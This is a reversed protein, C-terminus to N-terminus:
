IFSGGQESLPIMRQSDHTERYARIALRFRRTPMVRDSGITQVLSHKVLTRYADSFQNTDMGSLLQLQRSTIETQSALTKMLMPQSNILGAVVANVEPNTTTTLKTQAVYEPLRFVDNDYCRVMFDRAWDIHEKKVLISQGTGDHSFCCGAVAVAIRALKKHAEGGLLKVDTDFKENLEQAVQWTYRDANAEWKVQESNRSWIWHILNRYSASHHSLYEYEEESLGQADEFPSIYKGDNPLIYIFDFRAVDEDSGILDLVIKVGDPYDLINLSKGNSQVRPNSIWLKRVWAPAVGDVIKEIRATQQSRLGTLTAMVSMPMGSLEDLILMGKHNRPIKGWKIRHGGSPLKDAGGLLGATTATKCETFNGVGYFQQLKLATDSKGTRSEGIVLADLSGRKILERGFKFSMVSHYALDVAWAVMDKAFGGVVIKANEYRKNMVDKPHGQFQSLEKIMEEDIRFRNIANDSEEVRDILAVIFQQQLPHPFRKFFARYRQGDELQNEKGITYAYQEVGKYGSLEDETEVDPSLIVKHVPARDLVRKNVGPCKGPLNLLKTKIFKEQPEENQEALYLADRLTKEELFWHGSEEAFRCSDCPSTGNETYKPRTCSWEIATPIEMPRDYKGMMIVRSSIYRNNWEPNIIEWLPVLPYEREKDESFLDETYDVAEAMRQDLDDSTFHRKLFFDTIDKDDKEGTLGLDVIKVIAGAEKLQFAASRGGQKGAADCDYCVYVLKDKFQPLFIKPFQSGEGFTVTIANFGNQRALLTDNDGACLLTPKPDLRWHDYPFLLNSAGRTSKIKPINKGPNQAAEEKWNPNYTRIDALYGNIFVPYAVGEGLYGLQYEEITQETLGREQTLFEMGDANTKLNIMAQDWPVEMDGTLVSMYRVAQAYPLNYVKALFDIESLGGHNWRGEAACTKCHFVGLELNVHASPRTEYGKDHPFPCRVDAENNTKVTLAEREEFFTRLFEGRVM